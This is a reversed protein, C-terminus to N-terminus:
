QVIVSGPLGVVGHQTALEHTEESVLFVEELGFSGTRRDHNVLRTYLQGSVVGLSLEDESEVGTVAGLEEESGVTLLLLLLPDLLDLEM